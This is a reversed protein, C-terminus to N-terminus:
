GAVHLHLELVKGPQPAPRHVSIVWGEAAKRPLKLKFKEGGPLAVEVTEGRDIQQQTCNVEVVTREGALHSWKSQGGAALHPGAHAKCLYTTQRRGEVIETLHLVAPDQCDRCKM